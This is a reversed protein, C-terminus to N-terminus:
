DMQIQLGQFFIVYMTTEIPINCISGKNKAFEEKRHVIAIKQFIIKKSIFIKGSKKLDKLEDPYSRM